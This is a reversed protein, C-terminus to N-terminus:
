KINGVSQLKKILNTKNTFGSICGTVKGKKTLLTLPTGFGDSLSQESGTSSCSAPIKLDSKLIKSYETSDFLDSDIYYINAKNEAAVENYIPKFKNCWSCTNRGLVIMAPAKSDVVKMFAKYTSVTKYAVESDDIKNNVYKDVYKNINSENVADKTVYRVENNVAFVYVEGEKFLKNTEGLADIEEGSLKDVNVSAVEIDTEKKLDILTDKVKDYSDNDTHGFYILTLNQAETVAKKFEEYNYTTVKHGNVFNVIIPILLIIVILVPIIWSKIKEKM